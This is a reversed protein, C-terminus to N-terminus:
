MADRSGYFSRCSPSTPGRITAIAIIVAIALLLGRLAKTATM